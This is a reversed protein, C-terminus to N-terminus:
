IGLVLAEAADLAAKVTTLDFPDLGTVIEVSDAPDAVGRPRGDGLTRPGRGAVQAHCVGRLGNITM